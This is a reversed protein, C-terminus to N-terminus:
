TTVRSATSQPMGFPSSATPCAAPEFLEARMAEEWVNGTVTEIVRGALAYGANTYSWPVPTPEEAAVRAAFRALADDDADTACSTSTWGTASRCGPDTQWCTASLQPIPGNPAKSSRCMRPSLIKSALGAKPLWSPWSTAVM